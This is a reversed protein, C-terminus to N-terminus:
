QLADAGGAAPHSFTNGVDQGDGGVGSRIINREIFAASDVDTTLAVRLGYSSGPADAAGSAVDGAVIMSDTVYLTAAGGNDASVATASTGPDPSDAGQIDFGSFWADADIAQFRFGDHGVDVGTPNTIHSDGPSTITSQWGRRWDSDYGGYLSTGTPVTLQEAGDRATGAPCAETATEDYRAGAGRTMVYIDQPDATVECLAQAISQFPNDRSGTGTDDSGGDADVFYAANVNELVNIVVTDPASDEAGDNVVLDFVYTAVTDPEPQFAPAVGSLTGTGGTVDPGQIQTWTYSLADGDADSSASADLTVAFLSSSDQDSGADAVPAANTNGGNGGGGGGGDGGDSGDGGGGSGGSGDSSGDESQDVTVEGSAATTWPLAAVVRYTYTGPLLPVSLSVNEDTFDTTNQRVVGIVEFDTSVAVNSFKREIVFWRAQRPGGGATWTLEVNGSDPTASLGTPPNLIVFLLPSEETIRSM